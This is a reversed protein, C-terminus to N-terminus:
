GGSMSLPSLCIKHVDPGSVGRLSFWFQTHTGGAFTGTLLPRSCPCPSQTCCVQTHCLVEPLLNGNVGGGSSVCSQPFLIKGLPWSVMRSHLWNVRRGWWMSLVSLHCPFRTCTHTRTHTFMVHEVWSSPVCVRLNM